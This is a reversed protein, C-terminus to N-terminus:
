CNRGGIELSQLNREERAPNEVFAVIGVRWLDDDDVLMHRGFVESGLTRRNSLPDRNPAIFLKRAFNDTHDPLGLGSRQFLFATLLDIGRM